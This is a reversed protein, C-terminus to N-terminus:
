GQLIFLSCLRKWKEEKIIETSILYLPCAGLAIVIIQVILLTLSSKFLWFVPMLLFIIPTFHDGFYNHGQITSNLLNGNLTEKMVDTFIGLDLANYQFNTYKTLVILFMVIVYLIVTVIVLNFQKNWKKM